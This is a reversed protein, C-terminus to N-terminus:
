FMSLKKGLEVRHFYKFAIAAKFSHLPGPFKLKSIAFVLVAGIFRKHINAFPVAERVQQNGAPSLFKRVVAM